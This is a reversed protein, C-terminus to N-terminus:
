PAAKVRPQPVLDRAVRYIRAVTQRGPQRRLPVPGDYYRPISSWPWPSVAMLQDVRTLHDAPFWSQPRDVGEILVLWDGRRLQSHSAVAPQLGARELYYQAEWHGTYWATRAGEPPLREIVEALLARRARADSLEAGFFLAALALGFATAVRLGARADPEAARRSALRAGLLAAALGLGIVRRVAPYPSILFYGALEILLWACLLRGQPSGGDDGRLSRRAAALVCLAVGLGLPLLLLGAPHHAAVRALYAQAEFAPPLPLFPIVAFVAAAGLAAAWVQLRGAGLGVLALLAAYGATGGLLSLLGLSWYLARTGPAQADARAVAELPDQQALRELGALFHSQGYRAVLWAEWALFLAAALALALLGHRPRRLILAAALILAAYVAAVYKTQLALALLLGAAVAFGARERECGRLFLAFAALGLAVAPVDLMLNFGPLVAPGLALVWLAPAACPRAFRDLLFALAGTLALAFPLLALKWALPREGFLAIAGGLWYPLVAPVTGIQMAPEPADYWYLLFGYPDGPHQAVQRAYAVYVPDDIVLPKSANLATLALAAALASRWPASV